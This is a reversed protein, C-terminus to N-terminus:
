EIPIVVARAEDLADNIEARGGFDNEYSVALGGIVDSFCFTDGSARRNNEGRFVDGM